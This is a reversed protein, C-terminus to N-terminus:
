EVVAFSGGRKEVLGRERLTRLISYLTIKEVDLDRQLTDISAAGPLLYLYVLKARPSELETPLERSSTTPRQVSM